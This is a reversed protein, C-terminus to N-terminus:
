LQLPSVFANESQNGSAYSQAPTDEAACSFNPVLKHQQM